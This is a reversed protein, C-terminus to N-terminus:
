PFCTPLTLSPVSSARIPSWPNHYTERPTVSRPSYLRMIRHGVARPAAISVSPIFQGFGGQFFM